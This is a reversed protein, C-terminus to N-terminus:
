AAPARRKRLRQMMDSLLGRALFVAAALYVAAGAVCLVVWEWLGPPAWGTAWRVGWVVGVACATALAPRLLATAYTSLPLQILYRVILALLVVYLGMLVAWTNSVFALGQPAAWAFVAAGLLSILLNWAFSLDARGKTLFVTGSPHALIKLAGFVALPPLLATVPEWGPGFILPVVWSAFVALGALLPFQSWALLASLDVYGRRLAAHDDQRRAFIPLAVRSVVPTLYRSPANSLEFAMAYIGLAAPGLFRGVLLYDINFTFANLLREATQYAGFGLLPRVEHWRFVWAPKWHTATLIMAAVGVVAQTALDGLVLAYVGWGAVAGGISVLAGGVAGLLQSAALQPFALERLLIAQAYIGAPLILFRLALLRLLPTLAPEGQFHAWPGAGVAMMAAFVAGSFVTLWFLSSLASATLDRQRIVAASAGLDCVASTIALVALMLSMKGIESPPMFRAAVALTVLRLASSLVSASGTWKVGSIASDRLSM